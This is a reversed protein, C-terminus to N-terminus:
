YLREPLLRPLELPRGLKGRIHLIQAVHREIHDAYIELLNRLTVRGYEPHAGWRAWEEDTAGRLVPGMATRLAELLRLAAERSASPQGAYRLCRAWADQDYGPLDCGPQALVKRMRYVGQIESDATHLVIEHASWTGPGRAPSRLEVDSLGGIAARLRAPGQDYASLLSETTHHDYAPFATTAGRM